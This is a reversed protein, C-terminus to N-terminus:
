LEGLKEMRDESVAKKKENIFQKVKQLGTKLEGYSINGDRDDDLFTCCADM